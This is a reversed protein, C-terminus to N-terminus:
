DTDAFRILNIWVCFCFDYLLNWKILNPGCKPGIVELRIYNSTISFPFWRNAEEDCSCKPRSQINFNRNIQINMDVPGYGEEHLYDFRHCTIGHLNQYIFIRNSHKHIPTLRIFIQNCIWKLYEVRMLLIMMQMTLNIEFAYKIFRHMHIYTHAKTTNVKTIEM